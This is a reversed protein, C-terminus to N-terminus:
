QLASCTATADTFISDGENGFDDIEKGVMLKGTMLTETSFDTEKYQLEVLEQYHPGVMSIELMDESVRHRSAYLEVNEDDIVVKKIKGRILTMSLSFELDEVAVGALKCKVIGTNAFSSMSGLALLVLVMKKMETEKSEPKIAVTIVLISYFYIYVIFLQLINVFM